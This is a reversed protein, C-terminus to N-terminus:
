RLTTDIERYHVEAAPDRRDARVGDGGTDTYATTIEAALVRPIDQTFALAGIAAVTVAALRFRAPENFARYVARAGEVFGFGGAAALLVLLIPELRFSLLTTGAA